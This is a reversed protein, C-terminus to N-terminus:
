KGHLLNFSEELAAMEKQLKQYRKKIDSDLITIKHTKIFDAMQAIDKFSIDITGDNFNLSIGKGLDTYCHYNTEALQSLVKWESSRKTCQLRCWRDEGHISWPYKSLISEELLYDALLADRKMEVDVRRKHLESSQKQIDALEADLKEFEEKISM